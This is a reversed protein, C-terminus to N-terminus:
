CFKSSSSAYQVHQPSFESIEPMPSKPVIEVGNPPLPQSVPRQKRTTNANQVRFISKSNNRLASTTLDVQNAPGPHSTSRPVPCIGPCQTCQPGGIKRSTYWPSAPPMPAVLRSSYGWTCGKPEAFVAAQANAAPVQSGSTSAAEMKRLGIFNSLVFM